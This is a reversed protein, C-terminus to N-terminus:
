GVRQGPALALHYVFFVDDRKWGAAEYVRQAMRNDRDTFLTLRVADVTRAHREAQQLLQRAVGRRRAEEVVFLDNLLFTRALSTSSFSPYLQTFGVPVRQDEALFIVSQGHELRDRLFARAAILDSPQQYFRRYSDLLPTLADLDSLTAQRVTPHVM